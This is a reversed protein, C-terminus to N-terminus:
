ANILDSFSVIKQSHQTLRFIDKMKVLACLPISETLRNDRLQIDLSLRM